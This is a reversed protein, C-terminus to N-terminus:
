VNKLPLASTTGVGSVGALAAVRDMLRSHIAAVKEGTNYSRPLSVEMTLLHAAEFGPNVALLRATSRMMLGAGTLLVLSIAVEAVLLAHRLRLHERGGTARHGSELSAHLDTRALRLAPALGFVVGTVLSVGATFAAMGWHVGLNELYPMAGRLNAPLSATLARMVWHAVAIGLAGGFGALLVSETLLKRV